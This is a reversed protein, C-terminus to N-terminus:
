LESDLRETSAAIRKLYVLLTTVNAWLFIVALLFLNRINFNGGYNIIIFNISFYLFLILSIISAVYSLRFILGDM